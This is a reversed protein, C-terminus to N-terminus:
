LEAGHKVFEAIGNRIERQIQRECERIRRGSPRHNRKRDARHEGLKATDQVRARPSGASRLGSPCSRGRMRPQRARARSKRKEELAQPTAMPTQLRMM